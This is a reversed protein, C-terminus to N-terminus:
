LQLQCQWRHKHERIWFQKYRTKRYHFDKASKSSQLKSKKDKGYVGTATLVYKDAVKLYDDYACIFNGKEEGETIM